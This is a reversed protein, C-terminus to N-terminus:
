ARADDRNGQDHDRRETLPLKERRRAGRSRRRDIVCHDRRGNRRAEGIDDLRHLRRHDVDGRRHSSTADGTRAGVSRGRPSGENSSNKRRNKRRCDNEGAWVPMGRARAIPEPNMTSAAPRITVFLWTMSPASSIITVRFSPVRNGAASTPRSGFVSRATSSTRDSSASGNAAKPSESSVRAPSQTIAMPLGNPSPPVAVVPDDRRPPAVDFGTREVVEELNVGGDVM